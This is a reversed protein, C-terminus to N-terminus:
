LERKSQTVRDRNVRYKALDFGNYVVKVLQEKEGTQIFATESELNLWLLGAPNPLVM